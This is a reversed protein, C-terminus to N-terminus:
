AFKRVPPAFMTRWDLLAVFQLEAGTSRAAECESKAFHVAEDRNVFVAGCSGEADCVLWHGGGDPGILFHRMLAASNHQV